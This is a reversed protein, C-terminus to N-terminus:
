VQGTNYIRVINGNKIVFSAEENNIQIYYRGDKLENANAIEFQHTSILRPLIIPGHYDLQRVPLSISYVNNEDFGDSFTSNKKDITYVYEVGTGAQAIAIIKKGETIIKIGDIDVPRSSYLEGDEFIFSGVDQMNNELRVFYTESDNFLSREGLNIRTSQYQRYMEEVGEIKIAPLNIQIQNGSITFTVNESDIEYNNYMRYSLTCNVNGDYQSCSMEAIIYPEQMEKEQSSMESIIYPEQLEKEQSNMGSICGSSASALILLILFVSIKIKKFSIM